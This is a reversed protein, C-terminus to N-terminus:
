IGSGVQVAGSADERVQLKEGAKLLDYCFKGSVEFCAIRVQTGAALPVGGQGEAHSLGLM